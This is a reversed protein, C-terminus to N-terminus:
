IFRVDLIAKARAAEAAARKAVPQELKHPSGASANTFHVPALEQLPEPLQAFGSLEQL